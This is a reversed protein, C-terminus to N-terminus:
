QQPNKQYYIDSALEDAQQLLAEAPLVSDLFESRHAVDEPRLNGAVESRSTYHLIGTLGSGPDLPGAAVGVVVVLLLQRRPM